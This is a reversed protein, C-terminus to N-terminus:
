LAEAEGGVASYQGDQHKTVAGKKALRGLGMTVVRVDVHLALSISERSPTEGTPRSQMYELLREDFGGGSRKRASKATKARRRKVTKKPKPKPKSTRASNAIRSRLHEPYSETLDWGDQFRLVVGAAKLRHLGTAVSADFRISTSVLGGALLGATIEKATQKRRQAALFLKIADPISKDRFVGVPLDVPTAGNQHADPVGVVAAPAPSDPGAAQGLAGVSIAARYSEALVQLAAIKAEIMALFGDQETAM